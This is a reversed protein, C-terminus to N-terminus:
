LSYGLPRELGNQGVVVLKAEYEISQKAADDEEDKFVPVQYTWVGGEDVRKSVEQAFEVPAVPPDNVAVVDLLFEASISKRTREKTDDDDGIGADTGVVRLTHQGAHWSKHPKFAFQMKTADGDVAGFVIWEPLDVFIKEGLDNDTGEAAWSAAYTLASTEEDTFADFVYFSSTDEVVDDQNALSSAVPM